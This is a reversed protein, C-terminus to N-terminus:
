EGKYKMNMEYMNNKIGTRKWLTQNFEDHSDLVVEYFLKDYYEYTSENVTFLITGNELRMARVRNENIEELGVAIKGESSEHIGYFM